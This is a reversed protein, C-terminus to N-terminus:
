PTKVTSTPPTILCSFVLSTNGHKRALPKFLKQIAVKFGAHQPPPYFGVASYTYATNCPRDVIKPIPDHWYVASPVARVSENPKVRVSFPRFVINIVYVTLTVVIPQVIQAIHRGGFINLILNRSMFSIPRSTQANSFSCVTKLRANAGIPYTFLQAKKFGKFFRFGSVKLSFPPIMARGAM